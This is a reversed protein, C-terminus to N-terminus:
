PCSASSCREQARRTRRSPAKSWPSPAPSRWGTAPASRRPPGSSTRGRKTTPRCPIRTPAFRAFRLITTIEFGPRVPPSRSASAGDGVADSHGHDGAHRYLGAAPPWEAQRYLRGARAAHPRSYQFRVPALVYGLAKHAAGHRCRGGPPLASGAGGHRGCASRAARENGPLHLPYPHRDPRFLQARHGGRRRVLGLVGGTLLSTMVTGAVVIGYLFLVIESGERMVAVFVVVALATLPRRGASVDDGVQRIEAVFERGHEAMWVNHWTLSIVAIILVAANLLEQGSGAFANSIAGAFIAVVSPASCAPLIGLSVWWGRGAIGRTAALVIGIVLGAEIVERFVIILAGLM